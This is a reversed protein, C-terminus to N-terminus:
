VEWKVYIMAVRRLTNRPIDTFQVLLDIVSERDVDTCNLTLLQMDIIMSEHMPASQIKPFYYGEEGLKMLDDFCLKDIEIHPIGKRADFHTFDEHLETAERDEIVLKLPYGPKDSKEIDGIELVSDGVHEVGAAVGELYRRSNSYFVKGTNM